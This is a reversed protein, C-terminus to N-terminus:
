EKFRKDNNFTYTMGDIFDTKPIWNLVRKALDISINEEFTQGYRQERHEYIANKGVIKESIKVTELASIKQEGCLNLITRNELGDFKITALIIGDILDNIYILQRTQHGDGDIYIKKDNKINNLTIYTFLAERMGIGYVTGIRLIIYNLNPMGRLIYEGAIKSCAYPEAAQPSTKGEIEIKDLSNGYVCCTSIFILGKKHKACLKSINYTGKINVEFTKDLETYCEVVNAMAAFHIVLDSNKIDEELQEYNLINKLPLDYGIVEFYGKAKTTYHSGIFGDGGIVLLKKM